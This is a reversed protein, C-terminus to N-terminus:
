KNAGYAIEIEAFGDATDRVIDVIFQGEIYEFLQSSFGTLTPTFFEVDKNLVEFPTKINLTDANQNGDTRRVPVLREAGASENDFLDFVPRGDPLLFM